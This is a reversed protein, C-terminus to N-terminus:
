QSDQPYPGEIRLCLQEALIAQWEAYPMVKRNAYTLDVIECHGHDNDLPRPIVEMGLQRLDGAKLVAIYYKKGARGHAVQEISKYKERYISLGTTDHKTPRFAMPSPKADLSPDYFGGTVPIRRFLTEHDEISESGDNM